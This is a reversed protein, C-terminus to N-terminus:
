LKTVWIHNGVKKHYLGLINAENKVEIYDTETGKDTFKTRPNDLDKNDFIRVGDSNAKFITETDTSTITIGKGINVTDTTTENQNQAYESKDTGINLMLDYVECSNPTDTIFSLNIFRSNVELQQVVEKDNLSDLIIEIDNVVAKCTALSNLKKYKFSLTYTGNKVEVQQNLTSNQLLLANQNSAKDESMRVVHGAWYEFLHFFAQYPTLTSGEEIQIGFKVNYNANASPITLYFGINTDSTLTFTTSLPTTIDQMIDTTNFSAIDSGNIKSFKIITNSALNTIELVRISITYTGAKLTLKNDETFVSAGGGSISTGNLTLESGDFKVNVGRGIYDLKFNCKNKGIGSDEFWLGTNRLLNNGGITTFTNTIGESANQILTNTEEKTYTNGLGDEITSVKETIASIDGTTKDVILETRKLREKISKGKYENKITQEESTLAPSEIVSNFTGDFTFTHTLVYTDYVQNENTNIRIKNGVELFPKGYPTTLKLDYYTLGDLKNYIADIAQTRLTETYLFYPADIMIQHEGNALVSAEDIKTVNEGNTQSNGIIIVNLPGYKTLSGELTSYDSTNFEYDIQSSLWTLTVTNNNWDFKMISCSVREIEELVIRISEKNQFPNGVMVLESNDFTADTPTLGAQSCADQYFENITHTTGNDFSLSCVYEKELLTGGNMAIFKTNSATQEDELSEVTYDDFTIYETTDNSYKVGIEPTITEGVLETNAPLNLLEVEASKTYISGIITDNVYCSDKLAISKLYNTQNIGYTEYDSNTQNPFKSLMPYAKENTFQTANNRAVQIYILKISKQNNFNVHYNNNKNFNYYSIGDYMVYQINDNTPIIFYYDGAEFLLPNNNDYYFYYASNGNGNNKGNLTIVGDSDSTFTIGNGNGTGKYPYINLNKGTISGLRFKGLRNANARNKCENIFNQTAM